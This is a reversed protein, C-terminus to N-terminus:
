KIVMEYCELVDNVELKIDTEVQAGFEDGESITEASQKGSQLNIVKGDAIIENARKIHILCNKKLAGDKVKGGIVHKNKMSSFYMLIKASGIKEEMEMKPTRRKIEESLWESMKYIIKFSHVKKDHQMIIDRAATDIDVNFAILIPDHTSAMVTKVDAESVNGIGEQIVCILV